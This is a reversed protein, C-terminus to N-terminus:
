EGKAQSLGGEEIFKRTTDCLPVYDADRPKSVRNTPSGPPLSALLRTFEQDSVFPTVSPSEVFPTVNPTVDEPKPTVNRKSRYRRQRERQAERQKQKDKYM